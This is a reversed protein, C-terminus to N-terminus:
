PEVGVWGSLVMCDNYDAQARNHSAIASGIAAGVVFAPPGFAFGGSDGGHRAALSCQANARGFDSAAIQPGPTWRHSPVCAALSGALIIMPTIKNM